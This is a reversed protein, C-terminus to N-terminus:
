HHLNGTLTASVNFVKVIRASSVRNGLRSRRRRPQVALRETCTKVKVLWFFWSLGFAAM